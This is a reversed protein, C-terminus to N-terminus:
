IDKVLLVNQSTMDLFISIWRLLLINPVAMQLHASYMLGIRSDKKVSCVYQGRTHFRFWFRLNSYFIKGFGIYDHFEIWTIKSILEDLYLFRSYCWFWEESVKYILLTGLYCVIRWFIWPASYDGQSIWNWWSWLSVKSLFDRYYTVSLCSFSASSFTTAILHMWEVFWEVTNKFSWLFFYVFRSESLKKMTFWLFM